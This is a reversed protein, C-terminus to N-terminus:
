VRQPLPPSTTSPDSAAADGPVGSKGFSPHTPDEDSPNACFSAVVARLDPCGARENRKPGYFLFFRFALRDDRVWFGKEGCSKRKVRLFM